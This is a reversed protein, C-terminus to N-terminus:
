PIDYIGKLKSNNRKGFLLVKEQLVDDEWM